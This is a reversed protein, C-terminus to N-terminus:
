RRGLIQGVMKQIKALLGNPNAPEDAINEDQVRQKELRYAEMTTYKVGKAARQQALRSKSNPDYFEAVLGGM